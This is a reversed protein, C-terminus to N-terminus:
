QVSPAECIAAFQQPSLEIVGSCESDPDLLVIEVTGHEGKRLSVTISPDLQIRTHMESDEPTSPAQVPAAGGPPPPPRFPHLAAVDRAVGLAGKTTAM